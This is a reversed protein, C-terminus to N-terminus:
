CFLSGPDGGIVTIKGHFQDAYRQLRDYKLHYMILKSLDLVAQGIFIPKDLKVELNMLENLLLDPSFEVTRLYHPQSTDLLM